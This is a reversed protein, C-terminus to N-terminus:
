VRGGGAIADVERAATLYAAPLHKLAAVAVEADDADLATAVAECLAALRSLADVTEGLSSAARQFDTASGGSGTLTRRNAM